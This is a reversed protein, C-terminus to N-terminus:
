LENGHYRTDNSNDILYLYLDNPLQEAKDLQQSLAFYRQRILHAAEKPQRQRTFIGKKNGGVRTYALLIDHKKLM